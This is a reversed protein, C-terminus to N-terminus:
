PEHCAYSFFFFFPIVWTYNTFTTFQHLQKTNIMYFVLTIFFQDNASSYVHIKKRILNKIFIFKKKM